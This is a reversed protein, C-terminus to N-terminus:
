KLLSALRDQLSSLLYILPSLVTDFDLDSGLVLSDLLELVGSIASDLLASIRVVSSDLVDVHSIIIVTVSRRIM